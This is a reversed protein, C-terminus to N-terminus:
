KLKNQQDIKGQMYAAVSTQFVGGIIATFFALPYLVRMSRGQQWLAELKQGVIKKWGTSGSFQKIKELLLELIQHTKTVGRLQLKYISRLKSTSDVLPELVNIREKLVKLLPKDMEQTFLSRYGHNLTAEVLALLGCVGGWVPVMSWEKGSPTYDHTRGMVGRTFGVVKKAFETDEKHIKLALMSQTSAIGASLGGAIWLPV